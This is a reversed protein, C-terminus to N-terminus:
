EGNLIKVGNKEKTTFVILLEVFYEWLEEIDAPKSMM